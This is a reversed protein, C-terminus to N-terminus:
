NKACPRCSLDKEPWETSFMLSFTLPPSAPRSSLNCFRFLPFTLEDLYRYLLYRPYEWSSPISTSLIHQLLSLSFIIDSLISGVATSLHRIISPRFDCNNGRLKTHELRRRRPISRFTNLVDTEQLCAFLSAIFSIRIYALYFALLAGMIEGHSLSIFLFGLYRKMLFRFSFFVVPNSM